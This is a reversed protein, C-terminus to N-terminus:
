YTRRHIGSATGLALFHSYQCAKISTTLSCLSPHAIAAQDAEATNSGSGVGVLWKEVSYPDCPGTLWCPPGKPVCSQFMLYFSLFLFNM